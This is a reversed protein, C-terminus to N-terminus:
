LRDVKKGALVWGAIGAPMVGVDSWGATRAREAATHSATCQTNACYFILKRQRDPPLEGLEFQDYSTLRVAGPVVGMRERTTANNADVATAAGAALLRDVEDVSPESVAPRAADKACAPLALVALVALVALLLPKM